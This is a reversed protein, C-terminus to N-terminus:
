LALFGNFLNHPAFREIQFGLFDLIFRNQVVRKQRDQDGIIVAIDQAPIIRRVLDKFNPVLVHRVQQSDNWFQCAHFPTRPCTQLKRAFVANFDQRHFLVVPCRRM